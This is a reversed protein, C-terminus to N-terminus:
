VNLYIDQIFIIFEFLKTNMMVIVKYFIDKLRKKTVKYKEFIIEISLSSMPNM